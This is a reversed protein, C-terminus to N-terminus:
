GGHRRRAPIEPSLLDLRNSGRHFFGNRVPDRGFARKGCSGNKQTGLAAREIRNERHVVILALDRHLQHAEITANGQKAAEWKRDTRRCM